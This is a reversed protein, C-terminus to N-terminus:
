LRTAFDVNFHWHSKLNQSSARGTLAQKGVSESPVGNRISLISTGNFGVWQKAAVKVVSLSVARKMSKQCVVLIGNYNGGGFASGFLSDEYGQVWFLASFQQQLCTNGHSDVIVADSIFLFEPWLELADRPPSEM